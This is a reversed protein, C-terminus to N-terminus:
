RVLLRTLQSVDDVRELRWVLSMIDELRDRWSTSAINGWKAFDRFKAKLDDDNLFTDPTWPDGKAYEGCAEFTKGKATVTVATPIKLLWDESSWLESGPFDTRLEVDVKHRFSVIRPDEMTEPAYWLPGREIGFAGMAMAHPQNFECSVEGVPDKSAFRPGAGRKEIRILVRDIDEAKIENERILKLFVTLPHHTYRCSPWPKYSNGPLYWKKGLDRTMLDFDCHGTGRIAWLGREGDLIEPHATLGIEALLAGNVGNVAEWGTDAYKLTPLPFYEGFRGARMAANSGTIGFANAVQEEDLNLGKAAAAAAAFEMIGLRQHRDAGRPASAPLLTTALAIRAGVEFGVVVSTLLDRGSRKQGECIALASAVLPCGIHGSNMFFDTADLADGVRTNAYAALLPSTRDQYGILTCEPKGGLRRVYALSIEAIDTTCGGLAEGIFDMIARKAEHVVPAPLQDFETKVVMRALSRTPSKLARETDLAM